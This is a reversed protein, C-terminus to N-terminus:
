HDKLIRMIIETFVGVVIILLIEWSCSKIINGWAAGTRTKEGLLIGGIIVIYGLNNMLKQKM